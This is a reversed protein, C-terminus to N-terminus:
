SYYSNNYYKDSQYIFESGYGKIYNKKYNEDRWILVVIIIYIYKKFHIFVLYYSILKKM